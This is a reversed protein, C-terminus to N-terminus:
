IRSKAMEDFATNFIEDYKERDERFTHQYVSQLVQDTSWGGREMAIRNPMMTAMMTASMHRLDHISIHEINKQELLRRFRSYLAAGTFRVLYEQDAPLQDILELVYSPLKVKRNSNTTKANSKEIYQGDVMVKVSTVTIYGDRLDSRKLALIESTRFGLLGLLIALEIEYGKVADMIVQPTPLEKIEQGEPALHNSQFQHRMRRLAPNHCLFGCTACLRPALTRQYTTSKMKSETWLSIKSQRIRSSM